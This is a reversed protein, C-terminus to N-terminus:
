TSALPHRDFPHTDVINYLVRLVAEIAPTYRTNTNWVASLLGVLIRARTASTQLM